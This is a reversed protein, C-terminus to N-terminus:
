LDAVWYKFPGGSTPLLLRFSAPITAKAPAKRRGIEIAGTQVCRRWVFRERNDLSQWGLALYTPTATSAPPDYTKEGLGAARTITASVSANTATAAASLTAASASAVSVLTAGGPIGTGSIAAGVDLVPDFLGASTIATSSTTIGVVATRASNTAITGGNAAIQLNEATLQALNFAVTMDQGTKLVDIPDFEEAVEIDEFSPTITFVSGDETYGLDTWAVGWSAALNTPETAGVVASYLTGPGVRVKTRDKAM